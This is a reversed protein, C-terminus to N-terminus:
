PTQSDEAATAWIRPKCPLLRASTRRMPWQSARGMHIAVQWTRPLRTAVLGTQCRAREM